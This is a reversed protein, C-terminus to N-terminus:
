IETLVAKRRARESMEPHKVPRAEPTKRFAM